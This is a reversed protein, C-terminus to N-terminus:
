SAKTASPKLVVHSSKWGRAEKRFHKDECASECLTTPDMQMSTAALRASKSFWMKPPAYRYTLSVENGAPLDFGPHTSTGFVQNHMPGFYFGGLGGRPSREILAPGHCIVFSGGIIIPRYRNYYFHGLGNGTDFYEFKPKKFHNITWLTFSVLLGAVLGSIIGSIVSDLFPTDTM